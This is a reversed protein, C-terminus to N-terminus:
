QGSTWAAKLKDYSRHLEEPICRVGGVTTIFNTDGTWRPVVHMHVHDGIGAGAIKGINIGANFGEANMATRLVSMSKNALSLVETLAEPPLGELSPQHAYPVVMVHGNNYPFLNMIVFCHEGRYVILYERDRMPDASSASCFVCEGQKEGLIYEMRWPSWLQELGPEKMLVRKKWDACQVAFRGDQCLV